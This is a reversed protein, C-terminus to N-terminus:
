SFKWGSGSMFVCWSKLGGARCERATWLPNKTIRHMMLTMWWLNWNYMYNHQTKGSTKKKFQVLETDEWFRELWLVWFREDCIGGSTKKEYNICRWVLQYMRVNRFMGAGLAPPSERHPPWLLRPPRSPLSGASIQMPAKFCRRSILWKSGRTIPLVIYYGNFCLSKLCQHTM